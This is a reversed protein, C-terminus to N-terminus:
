NLYKDFIKHLQTENMPLKEELDQTYVEINMITDDLVSKAENEFMTKGIELVLPTERSNFTDVLELLFTQFIKGSMQNNDLTKANINMSM